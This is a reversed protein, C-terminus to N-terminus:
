RVRFLEGLQTVTRLMGPVEAAKLQGNKWIILRNGKGEVNFKQLGLACEAECFELVPPAFAKRIAQEDQGSLHYRSSFGPHTPFDIDNYGFLNGIKHFINAPKLRFAPLQMPMQVYAVSHHYTTPSSGGTDYRYNFVAIDVDSLSGHLCCETKRDEGTNVLNFCSLEGILTKLGNPSYQLRMSAALRELEERRKREYYIGIIVLVVILAVFGGFILVIEM